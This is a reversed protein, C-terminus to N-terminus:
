VIINLLKNKIHIKRLIKKDEIYKMIKKDKKIIEILEEESLDINAQFM